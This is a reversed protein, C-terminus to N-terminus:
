DIAKGGEGNINRLRDNSAEPAPISVRGDQV